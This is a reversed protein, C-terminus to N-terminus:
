TLFCVEFNDAELASPPINKLRRIVEKKPKHLFRCFLEIVEVTFFTNFLQMYGQYFPLKSYKAIIWYKM